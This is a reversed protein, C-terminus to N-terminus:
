VKAEFPLLAVEHTGDDLEMWFHRKDGNALVDRAVGVLEMQGKPSIRTGAQESTPKLIVRGADVAVTVRSGAKPAMGLTRRASVPLTVIGGPSIKLSKNRFTQTKQIM